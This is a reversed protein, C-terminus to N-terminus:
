DAQGVDAVIAQHVELQTGNWLLAILLFALYDDEGARALTVESFRQARCSCAAEKSWSGSPARLKRETLRGPHNTSDPFQRAPEDALLSLKYCTDVCQGERHSRATRSRNTIVACVLKRCDSSPYQRIRGKRSIGKPLATPEHLPALPLSVCLLVSGTGANQSEATTIYAAIM